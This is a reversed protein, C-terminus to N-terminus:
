ARNATQGAKRRLSGALFGAAQSAAAALLPSLPTADAHRALDAVPIGALGPLPRPRAFVTLGYMARADVVHGTGDAALAVYARRFWKRRGMGIAVRGLARLERTSRLFARAQIWTLALQGLWLVALGLFLVTISEVDLRREVRARVAVVRLQLAGSQDLITV